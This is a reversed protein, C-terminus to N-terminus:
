FSIIFETLNRDHELQLKKRLRYRSIEVGRVSIDMLNAIEKSSINLRLYACLKLERPSLDPYNEKLRKLFEEHVSEFHTEFVEWQKDSDIIRTIKRIITNVQNAAQHSGLEQTLKKLDNRFAVLLRSTQINVMTTNALEKDKQLKENRLNENRLRIVEKEAMLSDIQLQKEREAFIKQQQLEYAKRSRAMRRRLFRVVLLLVALILIGYGVYAYITYYWPPYIRVVVFDPESEQGFMNVAKVRFVYEGHPLNTFQRSTNAQWEVWGKDFGELMTRFRMQEPNEYDNASFDFQLQNDSFPVQVRFPTGTSAGGYVVSDAKSIIRVARVAAKFPLRYNRSFAPRYHVFGHQTGIFVNEDDFPYAFQFWKIFKGGLERFPIEVGTYTGDEKLRLVGAERMTFYWINGKDDETIINMDSRGFRKMLGEDPVFRHKAEDYQFLGQGTTFVPKGAVEYVSIDKDAPFGHRSNYFDVSTVSDFAQNFHARFVGKYGHSIWISHEDAQVLYRSSEKFGRIREGKSWRGNKRVFKLLYTYTGAIVVGPHGRPTMFAWGGQVNSLMEARNKEIIFVGANHGCFLTGDIVRLSWVQGQTGPVLKFSQGFGGSKLAEWDHYFVGRNTGLYLVGDHVVASYGSSLNNFNSFYTLPSNIEVYDIGNDLGLWLNSNQDTGISLVTNNQLGKEMNILQILRGATDCIVLGDQITGFAYTAPNVQLACFVQKEALVRSAPNKWTLLAEDHYIYIGHDATAILLDDGRPLVAWILEGALEGTGELKELVHGNLKYLGSSQDNIILVGDVVYSFHFMDPAKVVEFSQGDFIMLQKFSQFVVRDGLQHIRWVEGFDGQGAPLLQQLPHFVLVGSANPAFYGMENHGGAYIRGDSATMVSRVLTKGPLPFVRWYVGDFEVVGDNNAFYMLGAESRAVMWTQTGAQMMTNGYNKVGPTGISKVDAFLNGSMLWSLFLIVYIRISVM